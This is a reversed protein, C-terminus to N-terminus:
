VAKRITSTTSGNEHPSSSISYSSRTKRILSYGAARGHRRSLGSTGSRRSARERTRISTSWRDSTEAATQRWPRSSQPWGIPWPGAATTSTGRRPPIRRWITLEPRPAEIYKFRGSTLSRLDGWGYHFRPYVAEAYAALELERVSGTMMSVVSQGDVADVLHMGLLDLITPIVDVTRVTDAVRRGRLADYPALIMLPVHLVSEYIFFGHTSEGHDGLSEGHDGLVVIVTRDLLQEAELFARIRAVQSDVFAIEGLYPRDAFRTRYPEPPAYPSHADYFHVWGFFRLSKVTELWALARDAVENAPREVESLSPAEFKSLDFNDFYTEFGQAIGWTRDLVYAGVFGGTKFGQAKLREAVTTEREDLFFGGNDRVGHHPPFKGTFLSSHAPLTLPAPSTAHEFLVGERAIRDLAPTADERWGYAGLRDARTTDLTIILLNLDSPTIGRPLAGVAAGTPTTLVVPRRLRLWAEVGASALASALVAFGLGQLWTSVRVRGHDRM